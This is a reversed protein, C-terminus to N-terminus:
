TMKGELFRGLVQEAQIINKALFVPKGTKQAHLIETLMGGSIHQDHIFALVADCTDIIKCDVSLIEDESLYMSRYALLVFEDGDGPVYINLGEFYKRLAKGFSVARANNVEMDEDTANKGKIGRISHSVYIRM